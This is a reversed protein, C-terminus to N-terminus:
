RAGTPALVALGKEIDAYAREMVAASGDLDEIYLKLCAESVSRAVAPQRLANNIATLLRSRARWNVKAPLYFALPPEEEPWTLGQSVLTPRGRGCPPDEDHTLITLVKFSGAQPHRELWGLPLVMADARDELLLAPDLHDVRVLRWTFGASRAASLALYTASDLPLIGAPAPDDGPRSGSPLKDGSPSGRVVSSEAEGPGLQSEALGTHALRPAPRMQALNRLDGAQFDARVVIAPYARWATAAPAIEDWTYPTYGQIVRILAQDPSLAGMLYGDPRAGAVLNAALVGHGQSRNVLTVPVGLERSLRPALSEVILAQPNAQEPAWPLTPPLGSVLTLTREPWEARLPASFSLFLCLAILVKGM